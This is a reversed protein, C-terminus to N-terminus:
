VNDLGRMIHAIDNSLVIKQSENCVDLYKFIHEMNNSRGMEFASLTKINTNTEACIFRLTNQLVNVRFYKCYKGILKVRDM